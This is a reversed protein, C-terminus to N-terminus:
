LTLFSNSEGQNSPFTGYKHQNERLEFSVFLKGAIIQDGAHSIWCNSLHLSPRAM